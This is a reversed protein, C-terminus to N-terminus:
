LEALSDLNSCILLYKTDEYNNLPILSDISFLFLRKPKDEFVNSQLFLTCIPLSFLTLALFIVNELDSCFLVAFDLRETELLWLNFLNSCSYLSSEISSFEIYDLRIWKLWSEIKLIKSLIM